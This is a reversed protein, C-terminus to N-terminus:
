FLYNDLFLYFVDSRVSDWFLKPLIAGSIPLLMWVFEHYIFYLIFLYVSYFWCRFSVQFLLKFHESMHLHISGDLGVCQGPYIQWTCDMPAHLSIVIFVKKPRLVM